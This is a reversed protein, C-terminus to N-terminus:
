LRINTKQSYIELYDTLYKKVELISAKRHFRNCGWKLLGSKRWNRALAQRLPLSLSSSAKFEFARARGLSVSCTREVKICDCCISNKQLLKLPVRPGRLFHLSNKELRICSRFKFSTKKFSEPKQNKQNAVLEVKTARSARTCHIFCKSVTCATPIQNWEQM